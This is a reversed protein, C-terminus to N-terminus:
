LLMFAQLKMYDDISITNFPGITSLNTQSIEYPVRDSNIQLIGQLIGKELCSILGQILNESILSTIHTLGEGKSIEYAISSWNNLEVLYDMGYGSILLHYFGQRCFTTKLIRATYMNSLLETIM